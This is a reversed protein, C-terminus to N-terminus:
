FTFVKCQKELDILYPITYRRLIYIHTHTPLMANTCEYM